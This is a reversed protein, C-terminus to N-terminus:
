WSLHPQVLFPCGAGSTYGGVNRLFHAIDIFILSYSVRGMAGVGMEGVGTGRESRGVAPLPAGGKM